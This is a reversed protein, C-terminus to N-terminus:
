LYSISSVSADKQLGTELYEPDLYGMSGMIQTSNHTKDAEAIRALGFDTLRVEFNQWFLFSLFPFVLLCASFM